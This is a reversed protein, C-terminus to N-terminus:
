KLQSIFEDSMEKWTHMKLGLIEETKEVRLGGLRPRPTRGPSKLFDNMSGKQIDIKEGSYKELIYSGIEFPTTTDSSALHFVGSLEDKIIKVLPNVLDDIFIVSQIQDDFLPYLKHENYLNILNRAWDKKLGYESARFPYGYRIIAARCGSKEIEKEARNKTWGYWGIGAPDEPIKDDESYPGPFVTNGPFVFDTSIHILFINKDKCVDAIYKPGNVNLMWTLGNKNDKQTEAADVNTFAAFNVVADFTNKEFFIKINESSTIDLEKETPTVIDFENKALDIFRSAVMGSGGIVLIKKM